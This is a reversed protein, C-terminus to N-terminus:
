RRDPDESETRKSTGEINMGHYGIVCARLECDFSVISTGPTDYPSAEDGDKEAAPSGYADVTLRCGVIM